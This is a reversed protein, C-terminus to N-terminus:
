ENQSDIVPTSPNYQAGGANPLVDTKRPRGGKNKPATMHACCEDIWGHRSAAQYSGKDAKAWVTREAYGLASELCHEKTYKFQSSPLHIPMHSVCDALFGHAVAAHYANPDTARWDRKTQHARASELCMPLTWQREPGRKTM